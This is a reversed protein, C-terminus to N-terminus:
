NPIAAKAMLLAIGRNQKIINSSEKPDKSIDYLEDKKYGFYHMLKLNGKYVATVRNNYKRKANLINAASKSRPALMRLLKEDWGESIGTHECLVYKDRRLNGNLHDFRGSALNLISNHLASVSVNTEVVDKEKIMKGNEYNAAILPVKSVQEYPPLSHYLLGHEGFFQGHDSTIIVTANDLIGNDKLQRLTSCVSKDLYELRKLYGKHLIEMNYDSMEELGGLYMWKDQVLSKNRVPYHEHAEIYNIFIFQPKYNYDYKLHKKIVRKTDIAGRDLKYTGDIKSTKGYMMRRTGIYVRDMLTKPLPRTCAYGVNIMASRAKSGGNLLVNFKRALGKNNKINSHMWIDHVKDFGIALNTNSTLFPNNSMLTSQYGYAALKRAITHEKGDLFKTRVMWPDIKYTGDNLFDKSVNKISSVHMNTFLAAHTPATWSGPAVANIYTTANRAIYGITRLSSSSYVDEARATDLLLVVINKNIAKM